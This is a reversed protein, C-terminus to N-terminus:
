GVKLLQTAAVFARQKTNKGTGFLISDFRAERKDDPFRGSKPQRHDVYEVVTNLWNWLTGEQGEILTGTSGSEIMRLENMLSNQVGTADEDEETKAAFVDKVFAEIEVEDLRKKLMATSIKHLEDYYAVGLGLAEKAAEVKSKVNGTHRISIGQGEGKGLAFTLTNYCVVRTPTYFMRVAMTGDHANAFLIFREIVDHEGVTMDGPLQALIWVRKGGMLSGATHYIAQGEGVVSDFFDFADRNQIPRYGTGVVGLINNDLPRVVANNSPVQYYDAVGSSNALVVFMPALKVDWDLGGAILGEKATAPKSLPTGMKHWPLEGYYFMAAKGHVVDLLDSM